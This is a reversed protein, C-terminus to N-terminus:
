NERIRGTAVDSLCNRDFCLTQNEGNEGARPSEMM